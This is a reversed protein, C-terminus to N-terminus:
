PRISIETIPLTLDHHSFRKKLEDEWIKIALYQGKMMDNFTDDMRPMLPQYMKVELPIIRLPLKESIEQIQDLFKSIALNFNTNTEATLTIYGYLDFGTDVLRKCLNFQNVFLDPEAKTNLSFSRADIGKFCSVRSYMKYNLMLSIQDSTLYRWLYDNSLNDDSWLYVKDQLGRDILSQMMWPVWEPTLDPQGGSLDIMTPPDNQNLYLDVIEDATLFSSHKTDGKLLDFDVFCYWCRWNCISNQFVQARIEADPKLGLAKAAPLIPLPNSPWDDSAKFKFHRIRGFGDCNSPDQFDKEQDSGTFNTISIAQRSIDIGKSRLHASLKETDINKTAM